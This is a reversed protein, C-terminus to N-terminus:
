DKVQTSVNSRPIEGPAMWSCPIGGPAMWSCPIGGPAMWSSASHPESHPALCHPAIRHLNRNLIRHLVIRHLICSPIRHLVIRHLATCFAPAMWSSKRWRNEDSSWSQVYITAGGGWVCGCVCVGVCVCVCVWGGVWGGRARGLKVSSDKYVQCLQMFLIETILIVIHSPSHSLLDLLALRFYWEFSHFTGGVRTALPRWLTPTAIVVWALPFYWVLSHRTGGLWIAPVLFVRPLSPGDLRTGPLYWGLSHSTGGLVHCTGPSRTALVLPVLPLYLPFSPRTGPFRTALVVRSASHSTGGLRTALVVWALPV